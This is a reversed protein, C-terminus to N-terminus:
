APERPNPGLHADIKRLREALERAKEAAEAVVHAPARSRFGEDALRQETKALLAALHERERQLGASEEGTPEPRRLYFEGVATVSSVTREVPRQSAELFQLGAVRALRRITESQSRLVQGVEPSAARVYAEPLEAV